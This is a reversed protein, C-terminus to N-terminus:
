LPGVYSELKESAKRFSALVLPHSMWDERTPWGTGAGRYDVGAFVSLDHAAGSDLFRQIREPADAEYPEIGATDLGRLGWDCLTGIMEELAEGTLQATFTPLMDRRALLDLVERYSPLDGAPDMDVHAAQGPNLMGRVTSARRAVDESAREGCAGAVAFALQRDTVNGEPTLIDELALTARIDLHECLLSLQQEARRAKALRFRAALDRLEEDPRAVMAAVWALEGQGWRARMVHRFRDAQAGPMRDATIPAKFEVGLVLRLKRGAGHNVLRVAEIAEDIHELSEHEIIAISEAGHVHAAWVMRSVSYIGPVCQGYSAHTHVHDYSPLKPVAAEAPPKGKGGGREHARLARLATLRKDRSPSDLEAAPSDTPVDAETM